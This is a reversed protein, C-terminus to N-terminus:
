ERTWILIKNKYNILEGDDMTMTKDSLNDINSDDEYKDFLFIDKKDKDNYM